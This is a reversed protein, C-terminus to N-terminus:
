KGYDEMLKAIDIKGVKTRPFETLCLVERPVNWHSLRKSIHEIIQSKQADSLDGEALFRIFPKGDVRYEVAACDGVFDLERAVTEIEAPFVNMGSIKILRKKRGLFFLRGQEDTKFLDGTRVWMEGDIPVVAAATADPDGLYGSMTQDSAIILEGASGIPVPKLDDDVVRMHVDVLPYGLSGEVFEGKSLACVTVTETLGYGPSLKASAGCEQMRKDFDHVLDDGVTDGGVFVDELSKINDGAFSPEALLKSVMRPVALVTTIRYKAILKVAKDAKFRPMLVVGMNASLAAHVGICLGFGHFMPMVTLMRNRQSFRDDLFKFLNAAMANVARASLVITKPHGSTGGSQMYFMDQEGDGDFVPYDKGHPIGLYAYMAFPCIIKKAGHCLKGFKALNIDSLVVAKPKQKLVTEEFTSPSTLPHLMGGIAGLRALAYVIVPCQPINPLAVIVADGKRIGMKYLGAAIKDIERFFKDFTMKFNGKAVALSGLDKVHMDHM